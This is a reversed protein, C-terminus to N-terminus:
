KKSIKNSINTLTSLMTVLLSAWITSYVGDLNSLISVFTRCIPTSMLLASQVIGYFGPPACYYAYVQVICWYSIILLLTFVSFKYHAPWNTPDYNSWLQNVRINNM